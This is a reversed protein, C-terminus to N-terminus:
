YNEDVYPFKCGFDKELKQTVLEVVEKYLDTLDFYDVVVPETSMEVISTVCDLAIDDIRDWYAMNNKKSMKNM